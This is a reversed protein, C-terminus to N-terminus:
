SCETAGNALQQQYAIWVQMLIATGSPNYYAAFLEQTLQTQNLVVIERGFGDVATGPQIYVDVPTPTSNPLTTIPCGTYAPVQLSGNVTQSNSIQAIDLGAIIGWTHPGVNHRRRLDRHYDQEAQFDLAGLYEGEYYNLRETDTLYAM